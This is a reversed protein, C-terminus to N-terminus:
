HGDPLMAVLGAPVIGDLGWDRLTEQVVVRLSRDRETDIKVAVSMGARLKDRDCGDDLRLRVPLRQVVKVWNGSANQPPLLAFEAGTAPSLSDVVAACTADPYADAVLQAKQGLRVHTLQTEKLNTEVWQGSREILAFLAKGEEVYEGIQLNINSVTGDAPALIHTHDVDLQARELAALAQQFKPHAEVPLAPDGGLEALVQKIRERLTALERQAIDLDNRAEDLRAETAVGRSNLTQQRNFQRQMYAIRTEAEAVQQLGTRYAAKLAEIEARANGLAARAGAVAIDFPRPDLRFLVQGRTVLDNERVGVEIVRGDLDASIATLNAKVYANETTIYRSNAAWLMAGYFLGVAPVGILLVPRLLRRLVFGTVNRLRWRLVHLPGPQRRRPPPAEATTTGLPADAPPVGPSAGPIANPRNRTEGAPM